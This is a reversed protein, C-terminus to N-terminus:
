FRSGDRRKVDLKRLKGTESGQCFRLASASKMRADLTTVVTLMKAMREMGQM